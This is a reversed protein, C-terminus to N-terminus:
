RAVARNLRWFGRCVQRQGIGGLRRDALYGGANANEMRATVPEIHRLSNRLTGVGGDSRLCCELGRAGRAQFQGHECTIEGVLLEKGARQKSGRCVSRDVRRGAGDSDRSAIAESQRM